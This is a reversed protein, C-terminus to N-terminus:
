LYQPDNREVQICPPLMKVIVQRDKDRVMDENPGLGGASWGYKERTIKHALEQIDSPWSAKESSTAVSEEAVARLDRVAGPTRTLRAVRRLGLAFGAHRLAAPSNKLGVRALRQRTRRGPLVFGPDEFVRPAVPQIPLTTTQMASIQM